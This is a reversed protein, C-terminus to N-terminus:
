YLIFSYSHGNNIKYTALGYEAKTKMNVSRM